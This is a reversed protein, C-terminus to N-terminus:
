GNSRGWLECLPQLQCKQTEQFPAAQEPFSFFIMAMENGRNSEKLTEEKGNM